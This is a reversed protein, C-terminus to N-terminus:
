KINKSTWVISLLALSLGDTGKDRDAARVGVILGDGTLPRRHPHLNGGAPDADSEIHPCQHSRQNQDVSIKVSRQRM